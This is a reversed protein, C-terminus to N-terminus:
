SINSGIAAVVQDARLAMCNVGQVVSTKPPVEELPFRIIKSLQTTMFIDAGPDVALASVLHDTKLLMKGSGGPTKNANFGSMLRLTGKGDAGVLFVGGDETVESISVVGDGRALRIGLNYGNLVARQPFRIGMGQRTGILLDELGSTWAGAEVPGFKGADFVTTGPQLNPGVFNYRLMRVYGTASLLALYGAGVEPILVRLGEGEQLPIWDRLAHGRDHVVSEPLSDLPLRYARGYDTIALLDQGMDVTTILLPADTEPIDLDFVGMGARHQRAYLHRPTRKIMGNRSITVLNISTPPEQPLAPELPEAPALSAEKLSDLKNELWEIYQIIEPNAQSLDPREIPMM